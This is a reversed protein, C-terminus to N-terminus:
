FISSDHSDDKRAEAILSEIIGIPRPVEQPPGVSNVFTALFTQADMLHPPGAYDEYQDSGFQAPRPGIRGPDTAFTAPGLTAGVCRRSM